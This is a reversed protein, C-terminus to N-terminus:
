SFFFYSKRIKLMLVKRLSCEFVETEDEEESGEKKDREEEGAVHMDADVQLRIIIPSLFNFFIQFFYKFIFRQLYVEAGM